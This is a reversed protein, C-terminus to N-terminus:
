QKKEKLTYLYLIPVLSAIIGVWGFFTGLTSSPNALAGGSILLAIGLLGVGAITRQENM